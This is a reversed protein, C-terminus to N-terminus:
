RISKLFNSHEKLIRVTKNYEYFDPYKKLLKKEFDDKSRVDKIIELVKKAIVLEYITPGSEYSIFKPNNELFNLAKNIKKLDVKVNFRFAKWKLKELLNAHM